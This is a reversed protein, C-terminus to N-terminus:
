PLLLSLLSQPTLATLRILLTSICRSCPFCINTAQSCRSCDSWGSLGSEPHSLGSHSSPSTAPSLILSLFFFCCCCPPFPVFIALDCLSTATFLNTQSPPSFFFFLLCTNLLLLSPFPSSLHHKFISPHGSLYSHQWLLSSTHLPPHLVFPCRSYCVPLLICTSFFFLFLMKHPTKSFFLVRYRYCLPLPAEQHVSLYFISSLISQYIHLCSHVTLTLGSGNLYPRWLSYCFSQHFEAAAPFIPHRRYCSASLLHICLHFSLDLCAEFVGVSIDCQNLIAPGMNKGKSFGFDIRKQTFFILEILM